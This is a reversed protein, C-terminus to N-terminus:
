RRRHLLAVCFLCGGELRKGFYLNCIHFGDRYLDFLNDTAAAAGAQPATMGVALRRRLSKNETEMLRVKEKLRRIEAGVEALEAEVAGLATALPPVTGTRGHRTSRRVNSISNRRIRRPRSAM